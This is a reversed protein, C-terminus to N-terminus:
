SVPNPNTQKKKETISIVLFRSNCTFDSIEIESVNQRHYYGRTVHKRFVFTAPASEAAASIAATAANSLYKVNYLAIRKSNLLDRTTLIRRATFIEIPLFKRSLLVRHM